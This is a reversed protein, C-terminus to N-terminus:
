LKRHRWLVFILLLAPLNKHGPPLSSLPDLHSSRAKALKLKIMTKDGSRQMAGLETWTSSPADLERGRKAAPAAKKETKHTLLRYFYCPINIAVVAMCVLVYRM